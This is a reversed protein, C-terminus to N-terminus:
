PTVAGGRATAATPIRVEDMGSLDSGAASVPLVRM